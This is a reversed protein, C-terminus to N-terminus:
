LIKLIRVHSKVKVSFFTDLHKTERSNIKALIFQLTKRLPKRIVLNYLTHM